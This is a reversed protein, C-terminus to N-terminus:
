WGRAELTNLGGRPTRLHLLTKVLAPAAVFLVIVAQLLTSM